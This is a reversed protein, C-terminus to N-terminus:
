DRVRDLDRHAKRQATQAQRSAVRAEAERQRADALEERLQEITEGLETELDAADRAARDADAAAQEARAVAVKRLEREAREQQVRAREARAQEARERAAQERATRAHQAREQVTPAQGARKRATSRARDPGPKVSGPEATGAAKATPGSAKAAPKAASQASKATAAPRLSAPDPVFTLDATDLSGFGDRRVARILTGKRLQEAVQPDAMAAGLTTAVEDRLAAPPAQQGSVSFAQRLLADVLRRREQSLERIKPGNMFREAARLEQGLAALRPVAQPDSRILQNVIWASRTPKRLAAIAKAVATDGDARAHAALVSRRETFQDPDSSYLAAIADSLYNVDFM